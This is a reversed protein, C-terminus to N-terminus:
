SHSNKFIDRACCRKFEHWLQSMDHMDIENKFRYCNRNVIQLKYCCNTVVLLRYSATSSLFTFFLSFSKFLSMMLTNFHLVFWDVFFSPISSFEKQIIRNWCKAIDPPSCRQYILIQSNILFLSEWDRNNGHANCLTVNRFLAVNRFNNHLSSRFIIKLLTSEYFLLRPYFLLLKFKCICTKWLKEIDDACINVFEDVRLYAIM